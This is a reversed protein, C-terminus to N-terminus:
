EDTERMGAEADDEAMAAELMQMTPGVVRAMEAAWDIAYDSANGDEIEIVIPYQRNQLPGPPDPAFARATSLFKGLMEEYEAEPTSQSTVAGGAGIHWEDMDSGEESGDQHQQPPNGESQNGEPQDIKVATRIVVSFDGGGGIDFYGLVGSYIGRRQRGELKQLIECSRKKPAGTMSGAPLSAVFADFGLMDSDAEKDAGAHVNKSLPTSSANVDEEGDSTHLRRSSPSIADVVSVLQWLTEYEEVRMLQSVEVNGAGYVGHLQHRVLDVIMLNEAREKSSSLIAHADEATVGPVKRVTGKIPRCQASQNRDWAIYREPSSSLVHINHLRIYAGFPAPNLRALRKYLKWSLENNERASAKCMSLRKAVIRNRATLCLEYSNGDAIYSQCNAVRQCYTEATAVGQRCCALYDNLDTDTMDARSVQTETAKPLIIRDLQFSRSRRFAAEAVKFGTHITWDTDSIGRISQFHAEHLQHDIVISRTIYAFCIDPYSEYDSPQVDITQLGAEYSAFGMLGGWFPANINGDQSVMSKLTQMVTKIYTWPDSVHTELYLEDNGDRLQLMRTRVSYHIRLTEGPIVLGVISYRGTGVDTPVFGHQSGSELVIAEGHTIGLIECVQAVTAVTLGTMSRTDFIVTDPPLDPLIQGDGHAILSAMREATCTESGILTDSIAKGGPVTAFSSRPRIELSPRHQRNWDRANKWWNVIVRTGESNTCISEPHFQVGWFPKDVHKIGMLVAGNRKSDFDWALPELKPCQETPKWLEGPYSVARKIQIAHSINVQLSHYQTAFLQDVGAFLSRDKCLIESVLGHRPEQLREVKAGFAFALSQFGLCIGLIPLLDADLLKWLEKILGVDRDENAWGPGPGAIVADFSKLYETFAQKQESRISFKLGSNRDSCKTVTCFQPDDIHIQVVEADTCQQVQAVINNSFSDYADLYLIRPSRSLFAPAMSSLAM